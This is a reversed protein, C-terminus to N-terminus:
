RSRASWSRSWWARSRAVVAPRVLGGAGPVRGRRDPADRLVRRRVPRLVRRVGARGVRHVRVAVALALWLVTPAGLFWKGGEIIGIAREVGHAVGFFVALSAHEVRGARDHVVFWGIVFFLPVFQLYHSLGEDLFYVLDYVDGSDVGHQERSSLEIVNAIHLGTGYLFSRSRATASRRRGGTGDGLRRSRAATDGFVDANM